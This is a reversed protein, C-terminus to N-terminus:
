ESERTMGKVKVDLVNRVSETFSRENSWNYPYSTEVGTSDPRPVKIGEGLIIGMPWSTNGEM